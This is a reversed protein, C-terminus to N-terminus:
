KNLFLYNCYSIFVSGNGQYLDFSWLYSRDPISEQLDGVSLHTVSYMFFLCTVVCSQSFNNWKAFIAERSGTSGEPQYEGGPAHFRKVLIPDDHHPQKESDSSRDSCFSLLAQRIYRVVASLVTIWPPQGQFMGKRRTNVRLWKESISSHLEAGIKWRNGFM